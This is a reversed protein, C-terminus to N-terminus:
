IVCVRRYAAQRAPRIEFFPGRRFIVREEHTCFPSLVLSFFLFLFSSSPPFFSLFNPPFFLLHLSFLCPRKKKLLAAEFHLLDVCIPFLSYFIRKPFRYSAILFFGLFENTVVFFPIHSCHGSGIQRKKSSLSIVTTFRRLIM